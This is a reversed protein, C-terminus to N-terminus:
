LLGLVDEVSIETLDHVLRDPEERLLEDYTHTGTATGVVKMGATKAAQVGFISDEFAVCDAPDAGLLNAAMLFIDPAPKGRISPDRFASASFLDSLGSAEIIAEGINRTNSTAVGLTFDEELLGDLLERVGKIVHIDVM